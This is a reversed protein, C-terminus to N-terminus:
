IQLQNSGEDVSLDSFVSGPEGFSGCDLGLCFVSFDEWPFIIDYSLQMVTDVGQFFILFHAVSSYMITM